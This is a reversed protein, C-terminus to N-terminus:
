MKEVCRLSIRVWHLFDSGALREDVVEDGRAADEGLVAHEVGVAVHARPAILPRVMEDHRAGAGGREDGRRVKDFPVGVAFRRAAVLALAKDLAVDVALDEARPRLHHRHHVAMRGGDDREAHRLGLQPGDVVHTREKPGACRDPVDAFHALLVVEQHAVAWKAGREGASESPAIAHEHAAVAHRNDARADLLGHETRDIGLHVRPELDLSRLELPRDLEEAVLLALARCRRVRAGNVPRPLNPLPVRQSLSLAPLAARDARATCSGSLSASTSFTGASAM